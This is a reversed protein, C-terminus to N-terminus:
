KEDTFYWYLVIPWCWVSLFLDFLKLGLTPRNNFRQRQEKDLLLVLGTVVYGILKYGVTIIGIIAFMDWLM